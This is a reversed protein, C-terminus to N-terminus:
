IVEQSNKVGTNTSSIETSDYLCCTEEFKWSEGRYESRIRCHSLNPPRTRRNRVGRTRISLMQPDNWNCNSDGDIEHEM